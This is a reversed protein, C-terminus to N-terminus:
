IDDRLLFYIIGEFTEGQAYADEQKVGCVASSGELLLIRIHQVTCM